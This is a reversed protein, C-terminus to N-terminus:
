GPSGFLRARQDPALTVRGLTRLPPAPLPVGVRRCAAEFEAVRDRLPQLRNIERVGGKMADTPNLMVIRDVLGFALCQDAGLHHSYWKDIGYGVLSGDFVGLFSELKDRRFLPCTVEIFNVLRIDQGGDDPLTAPFSMKGAPDFAPACVWLDLAEAVAFLRGIDEPERPVLDDDAVWVHDYPALLAPEERWLSWLNQIKGGKRRVVQDAHAALWDYTAPDDGYYAVLLDWDRGGKPLWGALGHRDGASTFVLRRRVPLVLLEELIPDSM